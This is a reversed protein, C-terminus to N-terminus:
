STNRSNKFRNHQSGETVSRMNEFKGPARAERVTTADVASQEKEPEGEERFDRRRLLEDEGLEVHTAHAGLRDLLGRSDDNLLVVGLQVQIEVRVLADDLLHRQDRGLRQAVLDGAEDRMEHLPQLAGGDPTDGDLQLLLLPLTPIVVHGVNGGQLLVDNLDVGLGLLHELEHVHLVDGAELEGGAGPSATASVVSVLLVVTHKKAFLAM